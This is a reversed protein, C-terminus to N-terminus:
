KLGAQKQCMQIAVEGMLPPEVGEMVFVLRILAAMFQREASDQGITENMSLVDAMSVGTDRASAAASAVGGAMDCFKFKETATQGSVATGLAGLACFAWVLSGLCWSNRM